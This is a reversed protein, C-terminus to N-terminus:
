AASTVEKRQLWDRVARGLGRWVDHHITAVLDGGSLGGGPVRRQEGDRLDPELDVEVGGVVTRVGRGAELPTVHVDAHLDNGVLHTRAPLEIHVVALADGPPSGPGGLGRLRLKQGDRVGAPVNVLLESGRPLVGQGRCTGCPQMGQRRTGKCAPCVSPGPIRARMEGGSRAVDFPVSLEVRRDEGPLLGANRFMGTMAGFLADFVANGTRPAGSRADWDIRIDAERFVQQWDVTDFDPRGSPGRGPAADGYRDYRARTDPDRLTAYAESIEKFREEAAEDGPNRDPHYEMALKRYARKIADADADRPVGLVEYPNKLSRGTVAASYM